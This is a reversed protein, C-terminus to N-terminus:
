MRVKKAKWSNQSSTGLPWTNLILIHRVSLWLSTSSLLCCYYDAALIVTTITIIRSTGDSCCTAMSVSLSPPPHPCDKVRSRGRGAVEWGSGMDQTRFFAWIFPQRQPHYVGSNLVLHSAWILSSTYPSPSPYEGEPGAESFCSCLVKKLFFESWSCVLSYVCCFLFKWARYKTEM